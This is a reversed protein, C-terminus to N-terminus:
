EITQIVSIGKQNQIIKYAPTDSLTLICAHHVTLVAEQLDSDDELAKVKLGIEEAKIKSIHRAHVRTKEKSALYGVVDKAKQGADASGAFMGTTLWTTVIEESLKIAKSCEGVFTVPYKQIIQAWIPILAPNQSCERKATEFEEIVGHAAVGGVQPDIPGISSHKGMFIEKCSCAIMTGASMAVQPVFARIDGAFISRLYNVIAETAAIEGGPTHLLLDLGKTKDLGHITAMFGSVDNDNLEFGPIGQKLLDPKQLWGSYYVIVNRGTLDSLKELYDKRVVDFQNQTRIRRTEDVLDQWNPM